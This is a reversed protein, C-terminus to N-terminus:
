ETEVLKAPEEPAKLRSSHGELMKEIRTRQDLSVLEINRQHSSVELAKILEKNHEVKVLQKEVYLSWSIIACLLVFVYFVLGMNREIGRIIITDGNFIGVMKKMVGKGAGAM